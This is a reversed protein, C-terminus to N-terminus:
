KGKLIDSLQKTFEMVKVSLPISLSGAGCSPTIISQSLVMDESFGKKACAKLVARFNKEVEAISLSEIKEALTPVIGWAIAKGKELYEGLNSSNIFKDTIVDDSADFNIIELDLGLLEEWDANGCCHMGPIGGADIIGKIIERFSDMATDKEISYFGSGIISLSPEDIFIVVDPHLEKLKQIQWRATMIGNKIIADFLEPKYIALKGDARDTIVGHTMPGVIQGKVAFANKMDKSQANKMFAYFGSGSNEDIGFYEIDDNIIKTYFKDLEMPLDGTTDFGSKKNQPDIYFTPLKKSFQNNFEEYISMKPLQPWAPLRPITEFIIRCAEDPDTHPLSGIASAIAEPKKKM